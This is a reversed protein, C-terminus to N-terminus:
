NVKRFMKVVKIADETLYYKGLKGDENILYNNERLLKFITNVTSRSLDLEEVIESQTVRVLNNKDMINYMYSLVRYKDNTFIDVNSM